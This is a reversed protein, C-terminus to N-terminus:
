QRNRNRRHPKSCNSTTTPFSITPETIDTTGTTTTTTTLPIDTDTATTPFPVTITTTADVLYTTQASLGFYCSCASAYQADLTCEEIVYIPRSKAGTPYPEPYGTVTATYGYSTDQQFSSCDMWAQATFTQGRYTDTVADACPDGDALCDTPELAHCAKLLCLAPIFYGTKLRM